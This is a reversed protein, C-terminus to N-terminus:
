ILQPKHQLEQRRGGAEQRRGEDRRHGGSLSTTETMSTRSAKSPRKSSIASASRKAQHEEQQHQEPHPAERGRPARDSRHPNTVKPDSANAPAQAQTDQQDQSHQHTPPPPPIPPACLPLEKQPGPPPECPETPPPHSTHPAPQMPKQPIVLPRRRARPQPQTESLEFPCDPDRSARDLERSQLLALTAQMLEQVLGAAVSNIEAAKTTERRKTKDASETSARAASSAITLKAHQKDGQQNDRTGACRGIICKGQGTMGMPTWESNTLVATPKQAERGYACQDVSHRVWSPNRKLYKKVVPLDWLSSDEPQELAFILEPHTELAELQRRIAETAEKTLRREETQKAQTSNAKSLATLAWRGHATGTAQNLANAKSFLRCEMSMWVLAWARPHVGVKRSIATILDTSSNAAFDHTVEATIIGHRTGTSTFGRNDVGVVRIRRGTERIARGVSGWGEGLDLVLHDYTPPATQAPHDQTSDSPAAWNNAAIWTWADEYWSTWPGQRSPLNPTDTLTLAGESTLIAVAAMIAAPGGRTVTLKLAAAKLQKLKGPRLLQPAGERAPAENETLWARVRGTVEARDAQAKAEPTQEWAWTERARLTPREEERLWQQCQGKPAQLHHEGKSWCNRAAWGWIKDARHAGITGQQARSKIAKRLAAYTVGGTKPDRIISAIVQDTPRQANQSEM